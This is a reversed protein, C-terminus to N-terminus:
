ASSERDTGVATMYAQRILLENTPYTPVLDGNANRHVLGAATARQEVGLLYEESWNEVIHFKAFKGFGILEELWSVEIPSLSALADQLLRDAATRMHQLVFRGSISRDSYQRFRKRYRNVIQPQNTIRGIGQVSGESTRDDRHFIALFSNDIIYFKHSIQSQELVCLDIGYADMDRSVIKLGHDIVEELDVIRHYRVGNALRNTLVAWFSAVQPLRPSKSVAQIQNRSQYIAECIFRAFEESSEADREKHETVAVQPKYLANAQESVEACIMRLNEIDPEETEPLNQMPELATRVGWVLDAVLALWALSPNTCYYLQQDRRYDTGVLRLRQLRKLVRNVSISPLHTHAVMQPLPLPGDTLLLRYLLATEHSFDLQKMLDILDEAM